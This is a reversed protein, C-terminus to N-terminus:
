PLSSGSNFRSTEISGILMLFNNALLLAVAILERAKFIEPASARNSCGQIPL